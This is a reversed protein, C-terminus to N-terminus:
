SRGYRYPNRVSLTCEPCNIYPTVARCEPNACRLISGQYIFGCAGCEYTGNEIPVVHGKPCHLDGDRSNRRALRADRIRVVLGFLGLGLWLVAEMATTVVFVAARVLLFANRTTRQIM